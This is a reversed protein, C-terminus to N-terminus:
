ELDIAEVPFDGLSAGLFRNAVDRFSRPQDTVYVRLQGSRDRRSFRLSYEDLVLRLDAALAEASDVVQAPAASRSLVREITTRLLPYHTCGLIISDVQAEILPGLYRDAIGEPIAGETWGEEALPVFLPAPVAVVELRPNLAHIAREYAGSAVTGATALVGIRGGQSIGAGAKAGAEIVGIVPIGFRSALEPLAVASVTNCAVVLLKVDHRLLARACSAAYRVVTEPSRTGYPVRATDGLYVIDEDPLAARIARVVTLGGLGSDFVGIPARMRRLMARAGISPM